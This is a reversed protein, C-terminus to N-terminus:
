IWERLPIRFSVWMLDCGADRRINSNIIRDRGGPISDIVPTTDWYKPPFTRNRVYMTKM